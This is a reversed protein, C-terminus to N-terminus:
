RPAAPTSTVRLNAFYGDTGPGVWLGIAGKTMGLKL